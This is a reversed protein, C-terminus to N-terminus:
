AMACARILSRAFKFSTGLALVDYLRPRVPINTKSKLPHNIVAYISVCFHVQYHIFTLLVMPALHVERGRGWTFDRDNTKCQM